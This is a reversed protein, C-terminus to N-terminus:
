VFDYVCWGRFSLIARKLHFPLFSQPLMVFRVSEPLIVIIPLIRKFIAAAEQCINLSAASYTGTTNKAAPALESLTQTPLDTQFYSPRVCM